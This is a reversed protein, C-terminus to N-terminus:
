VHVQVSASTPSVQLCLVDQMAASGFNNDSGPRTIAPLVHQQYMSLIRPNINIDAACPALVQELWRLKLMSGCMNMVLRKMHLMHRSGNSCSALLFSHINFRWLALLDCAATWQIM